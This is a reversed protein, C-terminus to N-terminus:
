IVAIKMWHSYRIICKLIAVFYSKGEFLEIYRIKSIM